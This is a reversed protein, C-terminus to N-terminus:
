DSQKFKTLLIHLEPEAIVEHEINAELTVLTGPQLIQTEELDRGALFRGNGGLCLVSIPESAKHKALVARDRLTIEIMQRRDGSYIAKVVKSDEGGSVNGIELNKVHTINQM